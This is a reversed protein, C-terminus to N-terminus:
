TEKYRLLAHISQIIGKEPITMNDSILIRLFNKSVINYFFSYNISAEKNSDDGTEIGRARTENKISKCPCCGYDEKIKDEKLSRFHAVAEPWEEEAKRIMYDLVDNIRDRARPNDYSNNDCKAHCLYFFFTTRPARDGYLRRMMEDLPHKESSTYARISMKDLLANEYGSLLCDRIIRCFAADDRFPNYRLKKEVARYLHYSELAVGIFEVKKEDDLFSVVNYVMRITRPMLATWEVQEPLRWLKADERFSWLGNYVDEIRLKGSNIKRALHHATLLEQMSFMTSSVSGDSNQSFLGSQLIKELTTM